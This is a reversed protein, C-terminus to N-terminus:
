VMVFDTITIKMLITHILTCSVLRSHYYIGTIEASLLSLCSFHSSSDLQSGYCSGTVVVEERWWFCVCLSLCVSLGVGVCGCVVYVCVFTYVCVCVCVCVCAPV